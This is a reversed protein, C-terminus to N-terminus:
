VQRPLNRLLLRLLQCQRPPEHVTLHATARAFVYLHQELHDPSLEGFNVAAVSPLEEAGDKFVLHVLLLTLLLRGHLELRLSYLFLLIALCHQQVGKLFLQLDHLM